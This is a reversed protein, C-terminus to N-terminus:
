PSRTPRAAIYRSRHFAISFLVATVRSSTSRASVSPVLRMTASPPRACGVGSTVIVASNDSRRARAKVNNTLAYSLQRRAADYRRQLSPSASVIAGESNWFRRRGAPLFAPSALVSSTFSPLAGGEVGSAGTTP